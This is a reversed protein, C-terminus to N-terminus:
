RASRNGKVLKTADVALADRNIHPTSAYGVGFSPLPRYLEGAVVGCSQLVLHALVAVRDALDEQEVHRLRSTM